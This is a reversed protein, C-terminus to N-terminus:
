PEIRAILGGDPHNNLTLRLEHLQAIREVISLGLGSGSASQGPPRYFREKIRAMNHEDIGSGQDIVAIYDAGLELSVETHDPSYRIANDLLNRLMLQLLVADGQLPLVSQVRLSEIDQESGSTVLRKLKIHKARARQNVEQLVQQSVDHWSIPQSEQPGQLPDLRAMILLQDIMHSAREISDQIRAIALDREEDEESLALVDAQIRVAALPSRLEHAADATFRHEREIAEHIKVFLQNLTSVLPQLELPVDMSLAQQETASRKALSSTLQRLPGLAYRVSLYVFLITLPLAILWPLLQSFIVKIVMKYRLGVNEAVAVKMQQSPSAVVLVRWNGEKKAVGHEKQIQLKEPPITVTITQFGGQLPQHALFHGASDSLLVEDNKGFIMFSMVHDQVKYQNDDSLLLRHLPIAIDGPDNEELAMESPAAVALMHRAMQSMRTDNLTEIVHYLTIAASSIAAGWIIILGISISILLRATLSRNAKM